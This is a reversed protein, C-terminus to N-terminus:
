SHFTARHPLSRGHVQDHCRACLSELLHLNNLETGRECYQRHHVHLDGARGCQVCQYGDRKLVVSRVRQWYASDLFRQYPSDSLRCDEDWWEEAVSEYVQDAETEPDLLHKPEARRWGLNKPIM